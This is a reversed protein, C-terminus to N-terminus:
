QNNYDDMMEEYNDFETIELPKGDVESQISSVRLGGSIDEIVVQLWGYIKGNNDMGDAGLSSLSLKIASAWYTLTEYTGDNNKKDGQDYVKIYCHEATGESVSCTQTYVDSNYKGNANGNNDTTYDFAALHLVFRYYLMYYMDEIYHVGTKMEQESNRNRSECATIYVYSGARNDFGTYNLVTLFRQTEIVPSITYYGDVNAVAFFKDKPRTIDISVDHPAWKGESDITDEGQNYKKRLYECLNFDTSKSKSIYGSNEINKLIEPMKVFYFRDLEKDCRLNSNYTSGEIGTDYYLLPYETNELDYLYYLTQHQVYGDDSTYFTKTRIYDEYDLNDSAYHWARGLNFYTFIPMDFQLSLTGLIMKRYDDGYGDTYVIEDDVLPVEAYQYKLDAAVPDATEIKCEGYTAPYDPNYHENPTYILRRVNINNYVDKSNDPTYLAINTENLEAKINTNDYISRNLVNDGSRPIGNYFYGSVFGPMFVNVPQWNATIKRSSVVDGYFASSNLLLPNKNYSFTGLYDSNDYWEDRIPTGGGGDFKTYEGISGKLYIPKASTYMQRKTLNITYTYDGFNYYRYKYNNYIIRHIDHESDDIKRVAWTRKETDKLCDTSLPYAYKSNSDYDINVYDSGNYEQCNRDVLIYKIPNRPSEATDPYYVEGLNGIRPEEVTIAGSSVYQLLSMKNVNTGTIHSDSLDVVHRYYEQPSVKYYKESITHQVIITSSTTNTELTYTGYIENKLYYSEGPYIISFDPYLEYDYTYYVIDGNYVYYSNSYTGNVFDYSYLTMRSIDISYCNDTSTVTYDSTVNVKTIVGSNDITYYWDGAYIVDDPRYKSCRIGDALNVLGNEILINEKIERVTEKRHFYRNLTFVSKDETATWKTYINTQIIIDIRATYYTEGEKITDGPKFSVYFDDVTDTQKQPKYKVTHCYYKNRLTINDPEDNDITAYVLTDEYVFQDYYYPDGSQVTYPFSEPAISTGRVYETGIKEYYIDDRNIVDGAKYKLYNAYSHIYYSYDNLGYVTGVYSDGGLSQQPYAPINNIFSLIMKFDSKLPKNYFHVGFTKTLDKDTGLNTFNTLDKGPPIISDNDNMVSVYYPHKNKNIHYPLYQKSSSSTAIKYLKDTTHAFPIFEAITKRSFYVPPLGPVLVIPSSPISAVRKIKEGTIYFYKGVDDTSVTIESSGNEIYEYYESGPTSTNYLYYEAYPKIVDGQKCAIIEESYYTNGNYILDSNNYPVFVYDYTLTPLSFTLTPTELNKDVVYGDSVNKISSDAAYKTDNIDSMNAFTAIQVVATKTPKYSYIKELVSIESSGAILYKVPKAKTKTTLTLMTEGDNIRFAGAIKRVIENREVITSNIKNIIDRYDYFSLCELDYYEINDEVKYTLVGYNDENVLVEGNQIDKFEARYLPTELKYGMIPPTLTYIGESDDPYRPAEQYTSGDFTYYTVGYTLEMSSVPIYDDGVKKYLEYPRHTQDEKIRLTRRFMNVRLGNPYGNVVGEKYTHPNDFVYEYRYTNGDYVYENDAYNLYEIKYDYRTVDVDTDVAVETYDVGTEAEITHTEDIYYTNGHVIVNILDGNSDYLDNIKQYAYTCTEFYDINLRAKNEGPVNLYYTPIHQIQNAQIINSSGDYITVGSTITYSYTATEIYDVGVVAPITHLENIYYTIGHQIDSVNVVDGNNDYITVGSSIKYTYTGTENYDTGLVASVTRQVNKYYTPIHQIQNANLVNGSEDYITVGSAITYQYNASEFYDVGLVAQTTHSNDVYYTTGHQIDSATVENGGFTYITVGDAIEYEYSAHEFYDVGLTAITTDPPNLYYIGGYQIQDAKIRNGNSDYLRTGPKITYTYVDNVYYDANTTNKTARNTRSADKYYVGDSTLPIVKNGDSNYLDNTIAYSYVRKTVSGKYYYNQDDSPANYCYIGNWDYPTEGSDAGTANGDYNSNLVECVKMVEALDTHPNGYRMYEIQSLKKPNPGGNDYSGINLIDDWGYLGNPNKYYYEDGATVTINSQAVNAVYTSNEYTYYTEGAYIVEGTNYRIYDGSFKSYDNDEDKFEGSILKADNWGTKFKQIIDYDIGNIFLKFEDEYVIINIVTVNETDCWVPDTDPNLDHDCPCLQTTTIRYKQGGYPVGFYHTIVGDYIIYGLYGCIDVKYYYENMASVVVDNLAVSLTYVYPDSSTGSGTRKYYTEGAHIVYGVNFKQYQNEAHNETVSVIPKTYLKTNENDSPVRIDEQAVMPEYKGNTLLFYTEGFPITTDRTYPDYTVHVSVSTGIYNSGFFDTDIPQFDIRFDDETMESLAVFGRVDRDLRPEHYYYFEDSITVTMNDSAVSPHFGTSNKTYYIEDKKIIYGTKYLSYTLADMDIVMNNNVVKVFRAHDAIDAYTKALLESEDKFREMLEANKCNFPNVDCIFGIRPLEFTINDSYTNDYGDTVEITYSGNPIIPVENTSNDIGDALKQDLSYRAYKSYGDPPNGPITPDCFIFKESSINDQFYVDNTDKNTFTVTYPPEVNMNFAIFGDRSNIPCWSNGQYTLDYPVESAFKNTCDSFFETNFKDIATKGENLGFYFYFSNEYRPQRNKGNITPGLINAFGAHGVDNNNEYYYIKNGNRKVYNGYRFSLYADSSQELNHNNIYNAKEEFDSKETYGNVTKAKMLQKLSGDFNDIYLYNFDYELLGTESNLTTKLFNSNLTAFMSRYDPNYIEDYSIFGDPTLVDTDNDTGNGETTPLEDTEDLSIGLECIRSLNICSKPKTYSDFCTLGYFLGGNDYQNENADVYYTSGLITLTAENYNSQDAGLNGWDAGTYETIKSGLDIEEADQEDNGNQSNENTYDYFESMLDPPMNYTTSELTKFFQPIGHIDCDNLSGLLVLDTAFLTVLDSNGTSPDYDCPKYYYVRDGLMTLKEYVLGKYVKFYTRSFKHCQYGYCNEDNKQSFKLTEAGTENNAYATVTDENNVLPNINGMTKVSGSSVTRKPINTNYLRLNKKYARLNTTTNDTSCWVDKKITGNRRKKIKRYWLPLYVVGNIWDNYFNFQTVENDQALQNEICNYLIDIRDNCTMIGREKLLDRVKDNTGPSVNIVEGNDTECLGNLEIGCGIGLFIRMFWTAIGGCVSTGNQIDKWVKSLYDKASIGDSDKVGHGNYKAFIKCIGNFIYGAVPVKINFAKALDFFFKGIQYMIWSIFTLVSNIAGVFTVLVKVLACLFMYVFNFKIRLNNFPMPNHGDPHNVTKIGLHRLTNPLRSKQLRPIYSKVTYVNNWFLDRFNENRTKTGFEYDIEKTECYDPYDEEVLRPNNPILFRARKRAIADSPSEAMSLRFRVRARTPIGINPNDTMVMKGFEDHMVYDLNMPIQYCWVGDGNINNDGNVSFQEIQGNPTKRIMEIKGEGTIMDAMKGQKKAGVCKKTMANEGTDTIVSGMFICTPEFKYNINMDCRTISANLNSDTTDGWFPYVYVAQDQTRVQALADINTDVKFKTPSEFMNGNYGNHIMDRPKQSLVGIDSMDVDMHITQNGTPVGYIMYDGAENTRTTYKYYKDFIDIWNNNDLLVRKSPFTGINQHCEDDVKDPLLNYRVGNYDRDTTGTYTYLIRQEINDTDEYEIFVSVKVNPVGFGGNALVRGAVIGTNSGMLRYTNEQNIKLSLIELSEVTNDISFNVVSDHGVNTRIRYSKNEKGM